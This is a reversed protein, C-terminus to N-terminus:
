EKGQIYVGKFDNYVYPNDYLEKVYKAQFNSQTRGTIPAIVASELITKEAELFLQARENNDASVQAKKILENYKDADAGKWGTKKEGYYGEITHFCDLFTSPDNYDASWGGMAIVYDGADVKDWMINWETMEIDLVIGIQENLRQKLWEAIRRSYDNTGRTNFKLVVKSPDAPKGLEELGELLLKKPDPYQKMLESIHQNKKNVVDTYTKNGISTVPSVVSFLAIESNDSVEEAFAERDIALSIALRVKPNKLYEDRTNFMLFDLNAEAMPNYAIRDDEKIMEQWEPERMGTRDIEGNILAQARPASAEIVKRTVKDLFVNERDWYHPNPVYTFEVNQEWKGIIYPGNGVFKDQSSGYEDGWEEIAAKQVPRYTPFATLIVFYGCPRELEFEVTYKDLAKVGVDERGAKKSLFETGNKVIGEIMWAYPSALEPDFVRQYSYVFDDATVPTGDSWKANDRLHFTYKLGDESVEWSKAVGEVIKASGDELTIYRTLGEYLPAIGRWTPTSSSRHPDLTNTQSREAFVYEQKSDMKSEESSGVENTTTSESSESTENKGETTESSQTSVDTNGKGCATLVTTISLIVVVMLALWKRRKM